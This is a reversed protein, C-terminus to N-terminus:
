VKGERMKRKTKLERSVRWFKEDKRLKKDGKLEWVLGELSKRQQMKLNEKSRKVMEHHHAM